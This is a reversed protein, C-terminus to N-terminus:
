RESLTVAWEYMVNLDHECHGGDFWFRVISADSSGTRYDKPGVLERRRASWIVARPSKLFTLVIAVDIGCKRLM